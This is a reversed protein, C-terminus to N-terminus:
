HSVNKHPRNLLAAAVWVEATAVGECLMGAIDRPVVPLGEAFGPALDDEFGAEFTRAGFCVLPPVTYDRLWRKLPKECRM